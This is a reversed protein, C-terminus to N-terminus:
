GPDFLTGLVVRWDHAVQGREDLVGVAKWFRVAERRDRHNLPVSLTV